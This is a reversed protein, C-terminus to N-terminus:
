EADPRSVALVEIHNANLAFTLPDAVDPVHVQDKATSAATVAVSTSPSPIMLDETKDPHSVQVAREPLVGAIGSAPRLLLHEYGGTTGANPNRGPRAGGQRGFRWSLKGHPM